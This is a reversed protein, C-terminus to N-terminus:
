AKKIVQARLGELGEQFRKNLIAIAQEHSKAAMEAIERMNVLAQGFAQQALKGSRNVRDPADSAALVEKTAEHWRQMAESLIETQRCTLAQLGLYAQENAALLTDIDKRRAEILSPVDVGPLKLKELMTRIDLAQVPPNNKSPASEKKKAAPAKSM